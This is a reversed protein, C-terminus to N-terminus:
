SNHRLLVKRKNKRFNGVSSLLPIVGPLCPSSFIAANSIHILSLKLVEEEYPTEALRILEEQSLHERITPISEIRDLFGNPNEKIKGDRYSIHILSLWFLHPIRIPSDSWAVSFAKRQNM